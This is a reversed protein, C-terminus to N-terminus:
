SAKPQKRDVRVVDPPLRKQYDGGREYYTVQTAPDRRLVSYLKVVNTHNKAFENATGHCCIVINKPM